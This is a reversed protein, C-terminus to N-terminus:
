LRSRREARDLAVAGVGAAALVAGVAVIVPGYSAGLVFGIVLVVAGLVIGAIGVTGMPSKDDDRTSVDTITAPSRTLPM